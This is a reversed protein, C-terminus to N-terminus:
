QPSYGASKAARKGAETLEYNFQTQLLADKLEFQERCQACVFVTKPSSFIHKNSCQYGVGARRYDVGLQKLENNCKGCVLKEGRIFKNEFDINGCKFHEIIDGKELVRNQCEPCQLYFELEQSQCNSCHVTSCNPTKTVTGNKELPTIREPIEDMLYGADYSLAANLTPVVKLTKANSLVELMPVARRPNILGASPSALTVSGNKNTTVALTENQLNEFHSLTLTNAQFNINGDSNTFIPDLEAITKHMLGVIILNFARGLLKVGRIAEYAEKSDMNLTLTSLTDVIVFGQKIWDLFPGLTDLMLKPTYKQIAASEILSNQSYSFFDVFFLSYNDDYEKIDIGLRRFQSKIENAPRDVCVY